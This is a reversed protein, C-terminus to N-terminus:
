NLFTSKVDLQYVPLENQAALALVTRITEM